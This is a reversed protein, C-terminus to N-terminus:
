IFFVYFLIAGFLSAFFGHRFGAHYVSMLGRKVEDTM